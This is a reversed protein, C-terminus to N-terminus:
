RRERGLRAPDFVLAAFGRESLAEAYIGGTQEKVGTVPPTVVVAPYTKGAAYDEPLFLHAAVRQGDSDFQVINKGATFESSM